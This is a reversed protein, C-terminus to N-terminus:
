KLAIDLGIVAVLLSRSVYWPAVDPGM